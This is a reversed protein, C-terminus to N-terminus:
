LSKWIKFYFILTFKCSYKVRTTLSRFILNRLLGIYVYSVFDWFNSLLKSVMKILTQKINVKFIKIIRTNYINFIFM